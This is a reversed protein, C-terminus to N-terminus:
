RKRSLLSEYIRILSAVNREDTYHERFVRLCEASLLGWEEEALGAIMVAMEVLANFDALAAARGPVITEVAGGAFTVIPTGESLAELVTLPMGEFWISPFVLVRAGAIVDRVEGSQLVGSLVVNESGAAEACVRDAIPGEGAVTLRPAGSPWARVLDLIGKEASLRGVFVAGSRESWARPSGIAVSNPKLLLRNPRIAQSVYMQRQFETLCVVADPIGAALARMQARVGREFALSQLRSGRYCGRAVGWARSTVDCRRCVEGGLLHTGALCSARYNHWTHVTACGSRAAEILAGPGLLPYLNHVHVVDPRHERLAERMVRRGYRHGGQFAAVGARDRLTLEDLDSSNLALRRVDLGAAALLATEREVVADEGGRVRYNVHGILVRM